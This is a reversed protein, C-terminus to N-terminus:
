FNWSVGGTLSVTSYSVNYQTDVDHYYGRLSLTVGSPLPFLLSLGSKWKISNVDNYVIYSNLDTMNRITGALLSAEAWCFGTLKVGLTEGVIVSNRAPQANEKFFTIRNILYLNLNGTPFVGLQITHQQQKFDNLGSGTYTYGIDFVGFSKSASLSFSYDSVDQSTTSVSGAESAAAFVPSSIWLHHYSTSLLWGRFPRFAVSLYWQKQAVTGSYRYEDAADRLYYQDRKHLYTYAHVLKIKNGLYHKLTLNANGFYDSIQRTETVDTNDIGPIEKSSAFNYTIDASFGDLFRDTINLTRKRAPSLLRSWQLAEMDHGLYLHAFYLYEAGLSDSPALAQAKSLHTIARAYNQKRFYSIGLRLRLYYYDIGAELHRTGTYILSDWDHNLFQRYTAIDSAVMPDQELAYTPQTLVPTFTWLITLSAAM